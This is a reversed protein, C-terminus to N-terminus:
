APQAVLQEEHHEGAQRVLQDFSEDHKRKVRQELQAYVDMTMRSDAHGVQAMVWKVDFNNALLAISIYTGGCRIRRPTRYRRCVRALQQESALASAKALVGSVRGLDSCGGRANPILFANPGTPAGLRRLRSIHESVAAALDPTM